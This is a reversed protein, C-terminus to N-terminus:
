LGGDWAEDPLGLELRFGTRDPRVPDREVAPWSTGCGGCRLRDSPLDLDGATEVAVPTAGCVPCYGREWLGDQEVLREVLPRLAEAYARRLPAVAQGALMALLTGDVGAFAALEAVHDPHQVFAEEFVRPLDLRGDAADALLRAGAAQGGALRTFRDGAFDLDLRVPEDHLLPTGQRLKAQARQPPLVFRGVRTPRDTPPANLM